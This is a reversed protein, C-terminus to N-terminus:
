KELLTSLLILSLVLTIFGIGVLFVKLCFVFLTQQIILKWFVKWLFFSDFDEQTIENNKRVNKMSKLLRSIFLKRKTDDSVAKKKPM